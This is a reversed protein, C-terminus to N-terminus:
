PRTHLWQRDIDTRAPTPQSDAQPDRDHRAKQPLPIQYDITWLPWSNSNSSRISTETVSAAELPGARVRVHTDAVFTFAFPDTSSSRGTIDALADAGEIAFAERAKIVAAAAEADLPAAFALLSAPATNINPTSVLGIGFLAVIDPSLLAEWGLAEFAEYPTRPWRNRPASRSREAYDRSEAGLPRREDNLDGYDQLSQAFTFTPPQPAASVAIADVLKENPLRVSALGSWDQIEVRAGALIVARGDLKLCPANRDPAGTIFDSVVYAAGPQWGCASRPATTALYIAAAVADHAVERSRAAEEIARGSGASLVMRQAASASWIAGIMVTALAAVLVFGRRRARAHPAPCAQPAKRNTKWRM